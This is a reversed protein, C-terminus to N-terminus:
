FALSREVDAVLLTIHHIGNIRMRRENV